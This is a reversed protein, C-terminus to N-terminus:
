SVVEFIAEFHNNNTNADGSIWVEIKRTGEKGADPFIVTLTAQENPLLPIQAKSTIDTGDPLSIKYTWAGSTKTGANKVAFQMAGEEGADLKEYAIFNGNKVNGIGIFKTTLDTYGNPDSVPKKYTYVYKYYTKPASTPTSTAAPKVEEKPEDDTQVEDDKAAIGNAIAANVVTVTKKTEFAAKSENEKIFAIKYVVDVFREKESTLSADVSFTGKPLVFTEGCDLAIIEGGVRISLSVDDACEYSLTYAGDRKLDSWAIVFAEKSNIVSDNSKIVIENQAERGKQVNEALNALNTFAGPAVRVIQVALWVAFIILAAFGLVALLKLWWSKSEETVQNM